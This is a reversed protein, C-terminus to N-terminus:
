QQHWQECTRRLNDVATREFGSVGTMDKLTDLCQDAALSAQKPDSIQRAFEHFVLAFRNPSAGLDTARKFAEEAEKFDGTGQLSIAYGDEVDPSNKVKARVQEWYPQAQAFLRYYNFLAALNVKAPLFYEDRKMAERFFQNAQWARFWDEEGDISLAIVGRNNVAAPNNKSFSLAYEYAIAAIEPKGSGWLLNGYDIWISADEQNKQSGKELKERVKEFAKDRGDSGGDVPMGFLRFKGRVGQARKVSGYHAAALEDAMTPLAPSLVEAATAKTYGQSFTALAKKRLPESLAKLQIKFKEIAEPTSNKPPTIQDVEDAFHTAWLGLANLSAVAWPGGAEVANMYAKSLPELFSTRQNLAKKLQAEPLQLPAFHADHELREALKYRAYGIFPSVGDTKKKPAFNAVKKFIARASDFDEGKIYLDGLRGGCEAGYQSSEMCLKYYKSANADDRQSEYSRALGLELRAIEGSKPYKQLFTKWNAQAHAKDGIGDYVRASTELAAENEGTMGLREFQVAAAEFNGVILFETASAQIADMAKPSKPYRKFWDEAVRQVSAPDNAKGYNTISNAYAKEALERQNSEGAFAEYGKAASVYDKDKESKAIQNVKMRIEDDAILAKIKGGNQQDNAMLDPNAKLENIVANLDENSVGEMAKDSNDTYLQIWLRAAILAQPSKPSTVILKQIRKIASKQSSKYGAEVESAKLAAERGENTDPLNATLQDAADIYEKELDSPSGRSTKANPNATGAKHIAEALSATWLAGAEKAYRPDRSDVVQRYLQSAEQAKGLDRKVEALYMRIEPTENRPDSKALFEGLYAGYYSEATELAARANDKRYVEHNETATRRVMARLNQAAVQTESDDSKEAKTLQDSLAQVRKLAEQYHKRRLELDILKVNVRFAIDGTPHTKLLSEYVTVAKDPEVNREYQKGLKELLSPYYNKDGAVKQFYSIAEDVQGGETMFIAMDRMAEEHLNVFRENQGTTASIARKMTEVAKDYQRTRYYTWALKHLITPLTEPPSKEIAREFYYQATSFDRSDYASNALERYAEAIMTSNPYEKALQEFYQHSEKKEGLEGYNFALFYYVEDLKSYKINFSLIERCAKIGFALFARSHVRDIYTDKKGDALRKEHVRGELIFESHYAEMYIEALRLYLDARRDVPARRGLTIRLEKIEEDRLNRIKTDDLKEVSRLESDSYASSVMAARATNHFIPANVSLLSLSLSLLLASRTSLRKPHTM